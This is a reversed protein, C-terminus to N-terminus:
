HGFKGKYIRVDPTGEPEQELIDVNQFVWDERSDRPNRQLPQFYMCHRVLTPDNSDPVCFLECYAVRTAWTIIQPLKSCERITQSLRGCNLEKLRDFLNSFKQYEPDEPDIEAEDVEPYYPILDM